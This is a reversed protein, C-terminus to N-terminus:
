EFVEEYTKKFIDPKCPYFEGNVGKIIYDGMKALMTGELTKIKLGIIDSSNNETLENGNQDLYCGAGFAEESIFDCMKNWNDWTLQLAEIVVPRKKFKIDEDSMVDYVEGSSFSKVRDGIKLKM